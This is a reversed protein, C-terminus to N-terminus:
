GSCVSPLFPGRHRSFLHTGVQGKARQTETEEKPFFLLIDNEHPRVPLKSPLSDAQLAHTM